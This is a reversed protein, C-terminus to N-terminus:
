VRAFFVDEFAPKYFTRDTVEEVGVGGVVELHELLPDLGDLSFM